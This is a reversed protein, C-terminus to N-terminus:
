KDGEDEEQVSFPALEGDEKLIFDMQKEVKQLKEHCMKSLAMGEQFYNIAQELPVDGEELKSVISELGKMAEEFTMNENKKVDTM